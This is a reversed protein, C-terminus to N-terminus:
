WRSSGSVRCDTECRAPITAKRAARMETRTEEERVQDIHETLVYMYGPYFDLWM